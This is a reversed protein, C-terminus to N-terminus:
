EVERMLFKKVIEKAETVTYETKGAARLAAEVCEQGTHFVKGADAALEKVSYFSEQAPKREKKLVQGQVAEAKSEVTDATKADKSLEKSM